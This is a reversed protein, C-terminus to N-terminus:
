HLHRKEENENKEQLILKRPNPELNAVSLYSIGIHEIYHRANTGYEIPQGFPRLACTM